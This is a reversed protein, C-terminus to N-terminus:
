GLARASGIQLLAASLTVALAVGGVMATRRDTRRSVLLVTLLMALGALYAVHWGGAAVEYYEFVMGPGDPHVDTWHNVESSALPALYRLASPHSWGVVVMELVFLVAVAVVPVVATRIARGLVAGLLGLV